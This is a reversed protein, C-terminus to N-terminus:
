RLRQLRVYLAGQGGHHRAASEHKSVLGRFPATGLWLPVMRNLVGDSGPASGKGTIILVTRIGRARASSLFSLLMSHAAEQHLGHLDIRAEIPLRGKAIKRRTMRDFAQEPRHPPPQTPRYARHPIPAPSTGQKGAAKVTPDSATPADDQINPMAERAPRLPTVTSAVNHWLVRDEESLSRPSRRTGDSRYSKSRAM